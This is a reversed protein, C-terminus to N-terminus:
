SKAKMFFNNVIKLAIIFTGINIISKTERYNINFQYILNLYSFVSYILM